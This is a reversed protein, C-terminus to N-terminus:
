PSYEQNKARRSKSLGASSRQSKSAPSRTEPHISKREGSNFTEFDMLAVLAVQLFPRNRNTRPLSPHPNDSERRGILRIMTTRARLQMFKSALIYEDRVSYNASNRFERLSNADAAPISSNYQNLALVFQQGADVSYIAAKQLHLISSTVDLQLGSL